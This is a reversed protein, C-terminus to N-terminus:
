PYRLLRTKPLSNRAAPKSAKSREAWFEGVFFLKYCPILHPHGHKDRDYVGALKTVAIEYGSKEKSGPCGPASSPSDGVTRGGGPLM